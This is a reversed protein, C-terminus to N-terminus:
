LEGRMSTELYELYSLTDRRTPDFSYSMKFLQFATGKRGLSLSAIGQMFFSQADYSLRFEGRDPYGALITPNRNLIDTWTPRHEVLRRLNEDETNRDIFRPCSFELIPRNDTLVPGEGCFKRFAQTDLALNALIHKLQTFGIASLDDQVTPVAMATAARQGDITWSDASGVLILELNVFWAYSHPFVSLFTRLILQLDKLSLQYLPVWLTMLGGADLHKCCLEFFPHSYLYAMGAQAPHMPGITIIDYRQDSVKLLNRGDALVLRTRPDKLVYGNEEEFLRSAKIVSPSIEAATLQQLPHTALAGATIGTGYGIVMAHKPAPHLLAPLHGEMKEIRIPGFLGSSSPNGNIYMQKARFEAAGGERSGTVVVTAAHGEQIDLITKTRGIRLQHITELIDTPVTLYLPVLLIIPIGATLTRKRGPTGTSFWALCALGLPFFSLLILSWGSGILPLLVFAASLSGVVSGLTNAAYGTGIMKGSAHASHVLIRNAIPFSAGFCLTPPLLILFIAGFLSTQYLEWSQGYQGYLRPLLRPLWPLAYLIILISGALLAQVAALLGLPHRSSDARRSAFYNGIVLGTLVACLVITFAYTTNGVTLVLLRTWLVELALGTFGCVALVLLALNTQSTIRSSSEIASEAHVPLCTKGGAIWASASLLLSLVIALWSSYLLGFRPILLFGAVGAGLAAGLTNVAHLHGTVRGTHKRDQLRYRCLIPFTGGMLFTPPLIVPILLLFRLLAAPLSSLESHFLHIYVSDQIRLFYPILIAWLAIGLELLGFLMIHRRIRDAVRGFWWSGLSMGLMYCALVTSIAPSSSGFVTVLQRSWVVEFVLSAAGSALLLLHIFVIM